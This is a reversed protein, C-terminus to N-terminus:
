FNNTLLSFHTDTQKSIPTHVAAYKCNILGLGRRWWAAAHASAKCGERMMAGLFSGVDSGESAAARAVGGCPPVEIANEPPVVSGGAGVRRQSGAGTLAGLVGISMIM